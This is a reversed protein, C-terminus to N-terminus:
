NKAQEVWPGCTAKNETMWAGVVTDLDQRDNDIVKMMLEQDGASMSFSQLLSWAAPWTEELGSWAPIAKCDLGLGKIMDASRTGWDAPYSLVRGQPFTDATTMADKCEILAKWDPLGPCLEEMHIPYVWGENTELGLPGIDVIKGAEKMQPYIDGVNNTWVEVTAHITGDALAADQPFNGATVYEVTYGLETLMTGAIHTSIHQGTWENIALKITEDSKGPDAALLPQSSMLGACVLVAMM